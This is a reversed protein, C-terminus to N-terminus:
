RHVMGHFITPTLHRNTKVSDFAYAMTENDFRLLRVHCAIPLGELPQVADVVFEGASVVAIMHNFIVPM